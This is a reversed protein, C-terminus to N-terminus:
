ICEPDNLTIYDGKASKGKETMKTLKKLLKCDGLLQPLAAKALGYGEM